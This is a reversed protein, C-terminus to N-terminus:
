QSSCFICAKGQRRNAPVFKVPRMVLGCLVCFFSLLSLCLFATKRGHKDPYRLFSRWKYSSIIYYVTQELMQTEPFSLICVSPVAGHVWAFSVIYEPWPTSLDIANLACSIVTKVWAVANYLTCYVRNHHYKSRFSRCQLHLPPLLMTFALLPNHVPM